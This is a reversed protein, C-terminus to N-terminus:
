MGFCPAKTAGILHSSYRTRSDFLPRLFQCFQFQQQLILSIYECLQQKITKSICTILNFGGSTVLHVRDRAWLKETPEETPSQARSQCTCTRQKSFYGAIMRTSSRNPSPHSSPPHPALPLNTSSLISAKPQLSRCRLLSSPKLMWSTPNRFINTRALARQKLCNWALLIRVAKEM